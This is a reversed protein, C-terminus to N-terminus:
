WGMLMEQLRQFAIKDLGKSFINGLQDKSTIKVLQIKSPYPTGSVLSIESCLTKLPPDDTM